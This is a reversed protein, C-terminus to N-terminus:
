SIYCLTCYEINISFMLMLASWVHKGTYKLNTSDTLNHPGDKTVSQKDDDRVGQIVNNTLRKINVVADGPSASGRSRMNQM